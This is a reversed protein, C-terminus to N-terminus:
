HEDWFKIVSDVDDKRKNTLVRATGAYTMPWMSGGREREGAVLRSWSDRYEEWLRQTRNLHEVQEEAYRTRLVELSEELRETAEELSKGAAINMDTQTLPANPFLTQSMLEDTARLFATCSHFCEGIEPVSIAFGSAIEHCIIHRLDFTRAVQAFVKEPDSLVPSKPERMVEHRWRDTVGRLSTLFEEGILTSMVGNLQDLRSLQISHSVIEGVTVAKGHVARLVEFNIRTANAIAQANSLYPEGSDILEQIAMRLYSEICAIVAVPFYRCLEDDSQDLTSFTSELKTLRSVLEM